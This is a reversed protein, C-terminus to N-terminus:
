VFWPKQVPLQQFRIVDIRSCALVLTNIPQFTTDFYVLDCNNSLQLTTAGPVMENIRSTLLIIGLVLGIVIIMIAIVVFRQM